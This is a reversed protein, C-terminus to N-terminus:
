DIIFMCVHVFMCVLVYIFITIFAYIYIYMCPPGFISSEWVQHKISFM